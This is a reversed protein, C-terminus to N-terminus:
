YIPQSLLEINRASSNVPIYTYSGYSFRDSGWKTFLVRDPHPFQENALFRRLLRTCDEGVQKETMTELFQSEKGTVWGMLCHDTIKSFASMKRFWEHELNEEGEEEDWLLLIQNVNGDM